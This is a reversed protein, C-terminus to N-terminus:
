DLPLSFLWLTLILSRQDDQILAPVFYLDFVSRFIMFLWAAQHCSMVINIFHRLLLLLMVASCSNVFNGNEPKAVVIKIGILVFKTSYFIVCQSPLCHLM